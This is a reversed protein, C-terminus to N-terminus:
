TDWPSKRQMLEKLRSVVEPDSPENLKKVLADYDEQSLYITEPEVDPDWLNQPNNKNMLENWKQELEPMSKAKITILKGVTSPCWHRLVYSGPTGWDMGAWTRNVDIQYTKNEFTILKPTNDVVNGLSQNCYHCPKM